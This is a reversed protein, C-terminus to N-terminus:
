SRIMDTNPRITSLKESWQASSYDFKRSNQMKAFVFNSVLPCRVLRIAGIIEMSRLMDIIPFNILSFLIKVFIVDHITCIDLDSNIECLVSASGFNQVQSSSEWKTEDRSNKWRSRMILKYKLLKRLLLISFRILPIFTSYNYIQKLITSEALM